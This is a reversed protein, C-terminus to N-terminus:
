NKLGFYGWIYISTCYHCPLINEHETCESELLNADNHKAHILCGELDDKKLASFLSMRILSLIKLEGYM